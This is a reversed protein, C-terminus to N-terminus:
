HFMEDLVTVRNFGSGVKFGIIVTPEARLGEFKYTAPLMVERVTSTKKTYAPTGAWPGGTVGSVKRQSPTASSWAIKGNSVCVAVKLTLKATWDPAYQGYVYGRATAAKTYLKAQSPCSGVSLPKPTPKPTAKPTPKPTAKPTPKPSAAPAPSLAATATATPTHMPTVPLSPTSGDIALPSSGAPREALASPAPSTVSAPQVACASTIASASLTLLLLTRPMRFLRGHRRAVPHQNM